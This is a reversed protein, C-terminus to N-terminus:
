WGSRGGILFRAASRMQQEDEPALTQPEPWADPDPIPDIRAGALAADLDNAAFYRGGAWSTGYNTDIWGMVNSFAPTLLGRPGASIRQVNVIASPPVRRCVYQEDGYAFGDKYTDDPMLHARDVDVEVLLIDSEDDISARGKGYREAVARNSTLFVGCGSRPRLGDRRITCERGASTGHWLRVTRGSPADVNLAMRNLKTWSAPERDQLEKAWEILGAASACSLLGPDPTVGVRPLNLRDADWCAAVTPQGTTLGDAHQVCAWMLLNTQAPGLRLRRYLRRVLRAARRGHQGDRGNTRRMADHFLAFHLVVAPDARKEHELLRLGTEAVRRAHEQDHIGEPTTSAELVRKVLAETPM